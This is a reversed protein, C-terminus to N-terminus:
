RKKGDTNNGTMLSLDFPKTSETGVNEYVTKYSYGKQISEDYHRIENIRQEDVNIRIKKDSMNEEKQVCKKAIELPRKM